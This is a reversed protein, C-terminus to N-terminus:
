KSGTAGIVGGNLTYKSSKIPGQAPSSQGLSMDMVYKESKIRGGANVFSSGPKGPDVAMGGGSGGEGGSGGSGGAGASGGSGGAGGAGSSSTSGGSSASTGTGDGGCGAMVVASIAVAYLCAFWKRHM